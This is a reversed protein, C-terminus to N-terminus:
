KWKILYKKERSNADNSDQINLCETMGFMLEGYCQTKM